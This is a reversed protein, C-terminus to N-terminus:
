DPAHAHNPMGAIIGPRAVIRIRATRHIRMEATM